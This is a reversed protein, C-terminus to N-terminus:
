KSRDAKLGAAPFGAFDGSRIEVHELIFKPLFYLISSICACCLAIFKSRPSMTLTMVIFKVMGKAGRNREM